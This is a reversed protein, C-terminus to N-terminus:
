VHEVWSPHIYGVLVNGNDGAVLIEHRLEEHDIMTLIGIDGPNMLSNTAGDRHDAATFLVAYRFRPILRVLDGSLFKM